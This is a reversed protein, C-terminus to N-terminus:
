NSARAGPSPRGRICAHDLAGYKLVFAVEQAGTLCRAVLASALMQNDTHHEGHLESQARGRGALM